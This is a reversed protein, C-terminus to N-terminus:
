ICRLNLYQFQELVYIGRYLFISGVITSLHPGCCCIFELIVDDKHFPPFWLSNTEGVLMITSQSYNSYGQKEAKGGGETCFILFFFDNTTSWV